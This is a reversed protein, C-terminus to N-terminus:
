EDHLVREFNYADVDHFSLVSAPIGFQRYMRVIDVRDDFAIAVEELGIGYEVNVRLQNVMDRKIMVSPRHDGDKRMMMQYTTGLMLREAIWRATKQRVQNPRGTLFIPILAHRTTYDQFIKLNVPEDGECAEHYASYRATIDPNSWEILPIRGSDDALCNDLDFIVYREMITLGERHNPDTTLSNKKRRM